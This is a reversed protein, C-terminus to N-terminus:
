TSSKQVAFIESPTLIMEMRCDHDMMPIEREPLFSPELAVAILLPKSHENIRIKQIFRDYYGKGQGLRGGHNDFALGPVILIDIDGKVAVKYEDENPAEPINWKNKPWDKYFIHGERTRSTVSPPIMILDMDTKQFDLGVRPVFLTKGDDLVRTCVEDTKIEGHPMSLFLGVSKASQYETLSFLQKWVSGSQAALDSESLNSLLSRMQKRLVSKTKYTTSSTVMTQTFSSSRSNKNLKQTIFFFLFPALM